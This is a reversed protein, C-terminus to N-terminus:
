HRGERRHVGGCDRLAGYGGHTLAAASVKPPIWRNDGLDITVYVGGPQNAEYYTYKDNDVAMGMSHADDTAATAFLAQTQMRLGWYSTKHDLHSRGSVSSGSRLLFKAKRNNGYYMMRMVIYHRRTVDLFLLPSDINPSAGVISCRLEDMISTVEMQMEESTSNAWGSLDGGTFDWSVDVEYGGSGSVAKCPQWFFSLLSLSVFFILSVLLM